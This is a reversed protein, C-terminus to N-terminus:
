SILNLVGPQLLKKQSIEIDLNACPLLEFFFYKNDEILQGVKFSRAIITKSMDQYCFKMKIM